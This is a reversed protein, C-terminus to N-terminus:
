RSHKEWVITTRAACLWYTTTVVSSGLKKLDNGDISIYRTARWLFTPPTIDSDVKRVWLKWCPCHNHQPFCQDLPTPLYCQWGNVNAPFYRSYVKNKMQNRCRWVENIQCRHAYVPRNSPSSIGALGLLATQGTSLCEDSSSFNRRNSVTQYVSKSFSRIPVSSARRYLLKRIMSWAECSGGQNKWVSHIITKVQQRNSIASTCFHVLADCPWAHRRDEKTIDVLL